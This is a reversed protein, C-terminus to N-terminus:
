LLARVKARVQNRNGSFNVGFQNRAYNIYDERTWDEFNEPTSKVKKEPKSLREILEDTAKDIAKVRDKEAKEAEKIIKNSKTKAAKEDETIPTMRKGSYDFNLGGQSFAVGSTEGYHTAFPKNKDLRKQIQM